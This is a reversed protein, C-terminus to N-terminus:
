DRTYTQKSGNKMLFTFLAGRTKKIKSGDISMVKELVTELHEKTYKRTFQLYLQLSDRDNLTECIHQALSIESKTYDNM